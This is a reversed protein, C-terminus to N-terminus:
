RSAKLQQKRSLGKTANQNEGRPIRKRNWFGMKEPPQGGSIRDGEDQRACGKGKKSIDKSNKM